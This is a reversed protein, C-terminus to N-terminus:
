FDLKVVNPHLMFSVVPFNKKGQDMRAKQNVLLGIVKLKSYHEWLSYETKGIQQCNPKTGNWKGHFCTLTTCGNLRFGPNCHFRYLMRGDSTDNRLVEGDSITDNIPICGAVSM